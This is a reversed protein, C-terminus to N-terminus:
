PCTSNLSPALFAASNGGRTTTAVATGDICVVSINPFQDVNGYFRVSDPDRYDVNEVDRVTENGLPDCATMGFVAAVAIIVAAFKKM